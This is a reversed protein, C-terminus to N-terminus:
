VTTKKFENAKHLQFDKFFSIVEDKCDKFLFYLDDVREFNSFKNYLLTELEGFPHVVVSNNPNIILYEKLSCLLYDAVCCWHEHPMTIIIGSGVHEGNKYAARAQQEQEYTIGLDKRYQSRVIAIEDINAGGVILGHLGSCHHIWMWDKLDM